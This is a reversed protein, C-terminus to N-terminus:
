PGAVLLAALQAKMELEDTTKWESTLEDCVKKMEEKTRKVVIQIDEGIFLKLADFPSDDKAAVLNGLSRYCQKM